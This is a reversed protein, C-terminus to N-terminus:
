TVSTGDATDNVKREVRNNRLCAAIEGKVWKVM